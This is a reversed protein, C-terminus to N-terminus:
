CIKELLHGISGALGAGSEPLVSTDRCISLNATRRGDWGCTQSRGPVATDRLGEGPLGPCTM